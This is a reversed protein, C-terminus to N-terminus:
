GYILRVFNPGQWTTKLADGAYVQMTNGKIGHQLYKYLITTGTKFDNQSRESFGCYSEFYEFHSYSPQEPILILLLPQKKEIGVLLASAEASM